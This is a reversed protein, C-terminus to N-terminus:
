IKIDGGGLKLFMSLQLMVRFIFQILNSQVARVKWQNEKRKPDTIRLSFFVEGEEPTSL